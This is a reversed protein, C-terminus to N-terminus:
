AALSEQEVWDAQSLPLYKHSGAGAVGPGILAMEMLSDWLRPGNIRLNAPTKSM